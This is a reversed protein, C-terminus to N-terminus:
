RSRCQGLRRHSLSWDRERRNGPLLAMGIVGNRLPSRNSGSVVRTKPTASSITQMARRSSVAVLVDFLCDGRLQDSKGLGTFAIGINQAFFCQLVNPPGL